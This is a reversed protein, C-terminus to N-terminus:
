FSRASLNGRSGKFKIGVELRGNVGL